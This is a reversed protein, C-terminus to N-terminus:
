KNDIQKITRAMADQFDVTCRTIVEAGFDITGLYYIVTNFTAKTLTNNPLGEVFITNSKPYPYSFDLKQSMSSKWQQLETLQLGPHVGLALLDAFERRKESASQKEWKEDKAKAKIYENREYDNANRLAAEVSNYFMPNREWTCIYGNEHKRITTIHIPRKQISNVISLLPQTTLFRANQRVAQQFWIFSKEGSRTIGIGRYYCTALNFQAYAHGQEAAEQYCKVANGADIPIGIGKLYCNGLAFKAGLHGQEAAKQFCKAAEIENKIVGLGKFYQVGLNYMESSNTVNVKEINIDEAEEINIDETKKLKMEETELEQSFLQLLPSHNIVQFM